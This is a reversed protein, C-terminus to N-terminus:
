AAAEGVLRAAEAISTACCRDASYGKVLAESRATKEIAEATGLSRLANAIRSDPMAAVDKFPVEKLLLRLSRTIMRGLPALQAGLAIRLIRKLLEPGDASAIIRCENVAVLQGPKAKGRVPTSRPIIAGTTAACDRIIIALPDRATVDAHFIQLPSMALRDRNHSVFAAARTREQAAKVVVVPIQRIDPHTSAALATHQGDIVYLGGATRACVPPKFKTWDWKAVIKRILSISAASLERQYSEEIILNEPKELVVEPPEGDIAAPTVMPVLRVPGVRRTNDLLSQSGDM